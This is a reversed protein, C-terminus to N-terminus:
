EHIERIEKCFSTHLRHMSQGSFWTLLGSVALVFSCLPLDFLKVVSWILFFFQHLFKKSTFTALTSTKKEFFYTRYQLLDSHICFQNEWHFSIATTLKTRGVSWKLALFALNLPHWDFLLQKLKKVNIRDRHNFAVSGWIHDILKKLVRYLNSITKGFQTDLYSELLLFITPWLLETELNLHKCSPLFSYVFDSGIFQDIIESVQSARYFMIVLLNWTIIELLKEGFPM